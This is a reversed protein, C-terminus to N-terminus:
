SEVRHGAAIAALLAADEIVFRHDADTSVAGLVRLRALAKVASDPGAAVAAGLEPLTVRVTLRRRGGGVDEGWHESLTALREAMREIVSRARYNLRQADAQRLRRIMVMLLAVAVRPHRGLFALFRDKTLSWATVEGIAIVTASHPGADLAAIEGFVEGAERYALVVERGNEATSTVKVRGATVLLAEVAPAGEWMLRDGDAYRRSRGFERWEAVEADTLRADYAMAEM